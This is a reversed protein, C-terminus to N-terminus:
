SEWESRLKQQYQLGDGKKWIGRTQQVSKKYSGTGESSRLYAIGRRIAEAMSVRHAKSFSMLWRKEDESLTVITRTSGM